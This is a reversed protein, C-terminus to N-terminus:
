CFVIEYVSDILRLTYSLVSCLVGFRWADRIMVNGGDIGIGIGECLLWVIGYIMRRCLYLGYRDDLSLGLVSGLRMNVHMANEQDIM